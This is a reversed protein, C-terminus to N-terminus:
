CYRLGDLFYFLLSWHHHYSLFVVSTARDDGLFVSNSTKQREVERVEEDDFEIFDDSLQWRFAATFLSLPVINGSDSFALNHKAWNLSFRVSLCVLANLM